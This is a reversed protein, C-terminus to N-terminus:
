SQVAKALAARARFKFEEILAQPGGTSGNFRVIYELAALMETSAAFLIANERNAAIKGVEAFKAICRQGAMVSWTNAPDSSRQVAELPGPTFRLRM